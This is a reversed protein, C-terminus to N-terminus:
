RCSQGDFFRSFRCGTVKLMKRHSTAATLSSVPEVIGAGVKRASKSHKNKPQCRGPSSRQVPGSLVRGGSRHWMVRVVADWLVKRRRSLLVSKNASPHSTMRGRTPPLYQGTVAISAAMSAEGSLDRAAGIKWAASPLGTM